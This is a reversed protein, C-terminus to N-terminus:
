GVTVGKWLPEAASTRRRRRRILTTDLPMAITPAMTMSIEMTQQERGRVSPRQGAPRLFQLMLLTLLFINTAQSMVADDRSAILTGIWRAEVM